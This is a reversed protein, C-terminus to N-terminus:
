ITWLEYIKIVGGNMLVIPTKPNQPHRKCTKMKL